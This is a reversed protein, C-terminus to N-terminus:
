VEAFSRVQPHRAGPDHPGQRVLWTTVMGAARAADLEEVIDSLFHVHGAPLGLSSAIAVYSTAERKPGTTTDFWATFLPALDGVDTHGFLVKQAHVSGSSYVALTTGADHWAQLAPAVDAYVHSRLTGARYGEEWIWGQIAKLPSAKRDVDSWGLLTGVVEGLGRAGSLRCVAEIADAVEPDHAHRVIWAPLRERAYPFLVDRVFALSTTTGEIDTLIARTTM